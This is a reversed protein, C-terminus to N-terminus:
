KSPVIVVKVYQYEDEIVTQKFNRNISNSNRILVLCVQVFYQITDLKNM